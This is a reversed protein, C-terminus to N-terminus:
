ALLPISMCERFVGVPGMDGAKDLFDPRVRTYAADMTDALTLLAALLRQRIEGYPDIVTTSLSSLEKAHSSGEPPCHCACINGLARAIKPSPIALHPFREELLRTTAKGHNEAPNKRAAARGIDHFLVASLLLYIEAPRLPESFATGPLEEFATVIQDLHNEVNRLHPYSNSSGSSDELWFLWDSFATKWTRELQGYLEPDSQQLRKALIGSHHSLDTASTSGDM